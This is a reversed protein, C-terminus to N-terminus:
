AGGWGVKLSAGGLEVAEMEDATWKMRGFRAPLESRDWAEGKSPEVSGLESGSHQGWAGYSPRM